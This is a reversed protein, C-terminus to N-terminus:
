AHALVERRGTLFRRILWGLAAIEGGIFVMTLPLPQSGLGPRLIPVLSDLGAQMLLAALPGVAIALIVIGWLDGHRRSRWNWWWLFLLDRGVYLSVITFGLRGGILMALLGSPNNTDLERFLGPGGSLSALLAILVLFLYAIMWPPVLRFARSLDGRRLAHFFDGYVLINKPDACYSVYAIFYFLSFFRLDTVSDSFSAYFGRAFAVLFLLFGTFALPAARFQLEVRLLRYAALWVWACTALRVVLIFWRDDVSILGYWFRDAPLSFFNEGTAGFYFAALGALQALTVSLVRRRGSKRILILSVCFALATALLGGIVIQGTRIAADGVSVGSMLLTPILWMFCYWCYASAGIVKGWCMQWAGLANMRQADWTGARVEEAISDAARRTAWLGLIIYSAVATVEAKDHGFLSNVRHLGFLIIFIALPALVLRAPSFELWLNRRFEPNIM